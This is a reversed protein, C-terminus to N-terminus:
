LILMADGYSFFRYENAIATDYARKLKEIGCLAATLMLPTSRPLHFNTILSDVVKFSYGPYIFIDTTGSIQKPEALQHSCNDVYRGSMFGELARTTTTGVSVIKKNSAKSRKIEGIINADISFYESEMKHGTVDETRIPKFTGIGIHLTIYRVHVGKSEIKSLLEKTFHIGATPAAISGEKAAYVTQYTEKDQPKPNRKIYPPLPMDGYRWLLEMLNGSHEFYATGNKITVSLDDAIMLRGNYNKKSLIEWADRGVEKVLLFEVRGGSPKIGTLRAPFVKTNNLLLIDGPNLYDSLNHFRRHEISGNRHLVLLRSDDRKESPSKAILAEPLFFDFDAVKM